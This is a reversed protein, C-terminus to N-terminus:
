NEEIKRVTILHDLEVLIVDFTTGPDNAIWTIKKTKKFDKDSEDVKGTLVIMDGQQEKKSITVNGWKM